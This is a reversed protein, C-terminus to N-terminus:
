DPNRRYWENWGGEYIAVNKYGLLQTLLYMRAARWGTGCYWIIHDEKSIGKGNLTEELRYLVDSLSDSVSLQYDGNVVSESTRIRGAVTVYEYGTVIGAHEEASRADLLRYSGLDGAILKVMTDYPVFVDKGLPALTIMDASWRVPNETIGSSLKRVIEPHGAAYEDAFRPNVANDMIISVHKVGFYTLVSYIRASSDFRSKAQGCPIEIGDFILIRTESNPRIAYEELVNIMADDSKLNWIPPEEFKDCSIQSVGPVQHTQRYELAGLNAYTDSVVELIQVAPAHAAIIAFAERKSVVAKSAETETTSEPRM